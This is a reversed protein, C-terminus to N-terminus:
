VATPAGAEAHVFVHVESHGGGVRAVHKWNAALQAVMRVSYVRKRNYKVLGKRHRASRMPLRLVLVAQEKAMCWAMAVLMLDGWPNLAEGLNGLGAAPIAMGASAVLDFM